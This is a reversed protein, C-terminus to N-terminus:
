CSLNLGVSSVAFRSLIVCKDSVELFDHLFIKKANYILIFLKEM